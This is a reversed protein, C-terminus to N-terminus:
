GSAPRPRTRPGPEARDRPPRAPGAPRARRFEVGLWREWVKVAASNDEADLGLSRALTFTLLAASTVPMPLQVDEGIERALRLDKHGLDLRFQAGFDRAMIREGRGPIATTAGSGAALAEVLQAPDLGLRVGLPFVEALLAMTSLSLANNLLKTIHGSAVPGMHFISRGMAALAPRVRAVDDAEGGAYITLTGDRAGRVGGTIPADVMGLRREHLRAALMRTSAPRSTGMDVFVGGGPASEVMGGPGLVVEEVEASTPLCAIVTPCEAVLASLSPAIRAGLAELTRAPEPRRHVLTTLAFGKRILNAAMPEGMAGIGVFGIRETM